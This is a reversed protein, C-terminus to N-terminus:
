LLCELKAVTSLVASFIPSLFAQIRRVKKCTSSDVPDRLLSFSSAKMVPQHLQEWRKVSALQM